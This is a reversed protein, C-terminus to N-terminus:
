KSPVVLTQGATILPSDLHNLAAIQDIVPRLDNGPEVLVDAISWLSDGSQVVMTSTSEPLAEGGAISGVIAGVAISIAFGLAVLVRQGRVTLRYGASEQQGQDNSIPLAHVEGATASSRVDRVTTTLGRAEEVAIEFAPDPKSVGADKAAGALSPPMSLATAGPVGGAAVIAKIHSPKVSAVFQPEVRLASGGTVASQRSKTVNSPVAQLKGRRRQRARRVAVADDVRVGLSSGKRRAGDLVKAAM